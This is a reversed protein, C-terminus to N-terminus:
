VGRISRKMNNISKIRYEASSGAFWFKDINNGKLLKEYRNDHKAMSKIKPLDSKSGCYIDFVNVLNNKIIDEVLYLEAGEINWKLINFNSGLDPITQKLWDSFIIFEVQESPEKKVNHKDVFFSFVAERVNV